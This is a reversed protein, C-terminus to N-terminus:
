SPMGDRAVSRRWEEIGKDLRSHLLPPVEDRVLGSGLVVVM